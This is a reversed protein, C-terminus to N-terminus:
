TFYDIMYELSFSRYTWLWNIFFILDIYELKNFDILYSYRNSFSVSSAKMRKENKSLHSVIKFYCFILVISPLIYSLLTSYWHSFEVWFTSTVQVCETIKESSVVSGNFIKYDLLVTDYHIIMPISLVFSASKEFFFFDFM